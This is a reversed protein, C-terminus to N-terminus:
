TNGGDKGRDKRALDGRELTGKAISAPGSGSSNFFGLLRDVTGPAPQSDRRSGTSAFPNSRGIVESAKVKRNAAANGGSGGFAQAANANRNSPGAQSSGSGNSPSAFPNSGSPMAQSATAERQGGQGGFVAGANVLREKGKISSTYGTQTSANVKPAKGNSKKSRKKPSAARSTSATVKGKGKSKSKSTSAKGSTAGKASNSSRGAEAPTSAVIMAGAFLAATMMKLGSKM